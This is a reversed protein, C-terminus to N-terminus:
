GVGEAGDRATEVELQFDSTPSPTSHALAEMEAKIDAAQTLACGQAACGQAM